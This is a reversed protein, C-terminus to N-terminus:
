TSWMWASDPSVGPVSYWKRTMEVSTSPLAATDASAVNRVSSAAAGLGVAVGLGVGTGVGAGAEQGGLRCAAISAAGFPVDSSKM